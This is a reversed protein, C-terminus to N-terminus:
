ASLLPVTSDSVTGKGTPLTGVMTLVLHGSVAAWSLRVDTDTFGSAELTGSTTAGSAHAYASALDVTIRSGLRQSLTVPVTWETVHHFAFGSGFYYGDFVAGSRAVSGFGGAPGQAAVLLLAIRLAAAPLHDHHREGGFHDVPAGSEGACSPPRHDDHRVHCQGGPRHRRGDHPRNGADSRFARGQDGARLTCDGARGS